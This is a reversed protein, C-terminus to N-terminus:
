WFESRFHGRRSCYSSDERSGAPRSGTEELYTLVGGAADLRVGQRRLSMDTYVTWWMSRSCHTQKVHRLLQAAIYIGARAGMSPPLIVTVGTKAEPNESHGVRIGPVDTIDDHLGSNESRM